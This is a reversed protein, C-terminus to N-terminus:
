TLLGAIRVLEDSSATLMAIKAVGLATLGENNTLSRDAGNALLLAVGAVNEYGVAFHLPTNGDTQTRVNLEAGKEILLQLANNGARTAAHVPRVGNEDCANVSAGADLLAVAIGFASDDFFESPEDVVQLLSTGTGWPEDPDAGEALLRRVRPLDGTFV